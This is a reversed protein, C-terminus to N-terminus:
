ERAGAARLAAILPSRNQRKAYYLATKGDRTSANVDAGAKILLLAADLHKRIAAEILPTGGYDNAAGVAAGGDLLARMIRENPTEMRGVALLLPTLGYRGKGNVDAGLRVLVEVPGPDGQSVLFLLPTWGQTDDREELGLRRETDTMPLADSAEVADHWIEEYAPAAM